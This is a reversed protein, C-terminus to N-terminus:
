AVAEAASTASADGPPRFQGLVIDLADDLECPLAIPVDFIRAAMQVVRDFEREPASGMLELADLARIRAGDNVPRPHDSM